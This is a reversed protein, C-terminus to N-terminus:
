AFYDWNGAIEGGLSFQDRACITTLSLEEEMGGIEDM